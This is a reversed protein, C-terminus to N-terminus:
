SSWFDYRFNGVEQRFCLPKFLIVEHTQLIRTDM